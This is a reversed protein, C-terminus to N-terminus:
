LVNQTSNYISKIDVKENEKLKQIKKMVYDNLKYNDVNLIDSILDHLQLDNRNCWVNQALYNWVDKENIFKLGIRRTERVKSYLAPLVRKYLQEKSNFTIHESMFNVM